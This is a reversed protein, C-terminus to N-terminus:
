KRVWAWIHVSVVVAALVFILLINGGALAFSVFLIVLLSFATFSVAGVITAIQLDANDKGRALLLSGVTAASFVTGFLFAVLGQLDKPIITNLYPLLGLSGSMAIYFLVEPSRSCTSSTSASAALDSSLDAGLGGSAAVLIAAESALNKAIAGPQEEIKGGIATKYLAAAALQLCAAAGATEPVAFERLAATLNASPDALLRHGSCFDQFVQSRDILLDIRDRTKREPLVRTSAGARVGGPATWAPSNSSSPIDIDILVHEKNRAAMARSPSGPGAGSLDKGGSSSGHGAGSLGKGGSSSGDGAGAEASGRGGVLSALTWRPFWSKREEKKGTAAPSVRETKETAEAAKKSDLAVSLGLEQTNKAGHVVPAPRPSPPPSLSPDAPGEPPLLPTHDPTDDM